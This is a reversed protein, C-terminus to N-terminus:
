PASRRRRAQGREILDRHVFSRLRDSAPPAPLPAGPPLSVIAYREPYIFLEAM